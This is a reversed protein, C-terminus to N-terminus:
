ITPANLANGGWFGSVRIQECCAHLLQDALVQLTLFYTVRGKFQLPWVQEATVDFVM